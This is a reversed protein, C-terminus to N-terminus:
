KIVEIKGLPLEQFAVNGRPVIIVNDRREFLVVCDGVVMFMKVMKWGKSYQDNLVNAINNNSGPVFMQYESYTEIKYRDCSESSGKVETPNGASMKVKNKNKSM